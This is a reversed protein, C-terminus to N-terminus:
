IQKQKVDSSESFGITMSSGGTFDIGTKLGPAIALFVIGPVIVLFSFIFFWIRKGAFDM